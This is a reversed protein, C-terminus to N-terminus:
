PTEHQSLLHVEAIGAARLQLLIASLRRANLGSDARVQLPIEAPWNALADTLAQPKVTAGNFALQGDAAIALVKDAPVARDESQQSAPLTIDFPMSHTITGA